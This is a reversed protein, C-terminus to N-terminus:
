SPSSGVGGDQNIDKDAVFPDLAVITLAILGSPFSSYRTPPIEASAKPIGYRMM